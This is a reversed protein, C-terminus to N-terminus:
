PASLVVSLASISSSAHAVRCLSVERANSLGLAPRMATFTILWRPSSTIFTNLTAHAVDRHLEADGVRKCIAERLEGAVLLLRDFGGREVQLQIRGVRPHAEMLEVFGLVLPKPRNPDVAVEPQDHM